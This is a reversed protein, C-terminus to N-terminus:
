KCKIGEKQVVDVGFYKKEYTLIFEIFGLNGMRIEVTSNEGKSDRIRLWNGVVWTKIPYEIM